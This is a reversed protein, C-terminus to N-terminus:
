LVHCLMTLCNQEKCGGFGVRFLFVYACGKANFIKAIFVLFFAQLVSLRSEPTWQLLMWYGEQALVGREGLNQGCTLNNWFLVRMTNGAVPAPQECVPPCTIIVDRWLTVHGRNFSWLKLKWTGHHAPQKCEIPLSHHHWLTMHGREVLRYIRAHHHRLIAHGWKGLWPNEHCLRVDSKRSSVELAVTVNVICTPHVNLKQQHCLKNIEHLRPLTQVTWREGKCCACYASLRMIGNWIWWILFYHQKWAIGVNKTLLSDLAKLKMKKHVEIHAHVEKVNRVHRCPWHFAHNISVCRLLGGM